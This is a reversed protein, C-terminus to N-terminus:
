PWLYRNEASQGGSVFLYWVEQDYFVFDAFVLANQVLFHGLVENQGRKPGLQAWKLALLKEASQGGTAVLYWLEYDYFVSDAFVLANQALFHGLVENQGRKPGLHGM